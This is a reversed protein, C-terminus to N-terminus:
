WGSTMLLLLLLHHLAYVAAAAAALSCTWQNLWCCLLLPLL